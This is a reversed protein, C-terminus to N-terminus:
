KKKAMSQEVFVDKYETKYKMKNPNPNYKQIPKCSMEMKIKKQKTNFTQQYSSEQRNGMQIFIKNSFYNDLYEKHIIPQCADNADITKMRYCQKYTTDCNLKGGGM